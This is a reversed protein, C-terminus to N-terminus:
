GHGSDVRRKRAIEEIIKLEHPPYMPRGRSELYVQNMV